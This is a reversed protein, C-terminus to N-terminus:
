ERRQKGYLTVKQLMDGETNIIQERIVKYIDKEKKIMQQM